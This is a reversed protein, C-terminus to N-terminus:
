YGNICTPIPTLIFFRLNKPEPNVALKGAHSLWYGEVNYLSLSDLEQFFINYLWFNLRKLIMVSAGDIGNGYSHM